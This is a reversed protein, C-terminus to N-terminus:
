QRASVTKYRWHTTVGFKTLSCVFKRPHLRHTILSCQGESLYLFFPIFLIAGQNISRSLHYVRQSKMTCPQYAEACGLTRVTLTSDLSPQTLSNHEKAFCKVSATGKEVWSHLSDSFDSNSPTSPPPHNYRLSHCGIRSSYYYEKDLRSSDRTELISKVKGALGGSRLTPTHGIIGNRLKWNNM